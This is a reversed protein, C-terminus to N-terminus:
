DNLAPVNLHETEGRVIGEANTRHLQFNELNVHIREMDGNPNRVDNREPYGIQSEPFDNSRRNSYNKDMIM